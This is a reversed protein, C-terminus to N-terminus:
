DGAPLARLQMANAIAQELVGQSTCTIPAAGTGETTQAVADMRIQIPTEGAENTPQVLVYVSLLIRRTDANAGGINHGCDFFRSLRDRGLRQSVRHEQVAGTWRAQDMLPLPLGVDTFAEPIAAFVARRPAVIRARSVYADRQLTIGRSDADVYTVNVNHDTAPRELTTDTGTTACAAMLAATSATIIRRM